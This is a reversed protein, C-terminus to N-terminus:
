QSANRYTRRDLVEGDLLDPDAQTAAWRFQLAADTVDRGRGGTLDTAVQGPDVVGVVQDLAAAFRAAVAEAAAKSVAYSGYGPRPDRAVSGSSVLVRADPALHPLAERITAFVGRANTRLHDDFAAYTEGSLPTQGPDGHYVGANAVVVDIDGGERAAREMLREIDFEDRVDARAGAASGGEDRIAAAVTEVADGNRACVVVHAGADGFAHAVAEGIGRSAGTVVATQGDM